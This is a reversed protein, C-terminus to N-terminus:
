KEANIFDFYYIYASYITLFLTSYLVSKEGLQWVLSPQVPQLILLFCLLMQVTTKLKGWWSVAINKGYTLAIERLSMMFFERGILIIVWYFYIHGIALLAIFTSFMFFKDAIPDLLKGLHTEQQYKRALYGDLFDTLGFFFFLAAILSTIFFNHLPLFWVILLPLLLPSLVLRVLTFFLPFNLAKFQIMRQSGYYVPRGTM